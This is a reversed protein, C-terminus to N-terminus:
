FFICICVIVFEKTGQTATSRTLNVSLLVPVNLETEATVIAIETRLQGAGEPFIYSSREFWM